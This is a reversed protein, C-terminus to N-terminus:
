IDKLNFQGFGAGVSAGREWLFCQEQFADDGDEGKIINNQSDHIEWLNHGSALLFETLWLQETTILPTPESM